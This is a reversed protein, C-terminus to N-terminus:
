YVASKKLTALVKALSIPIFRLKIGLVEIANYKGM